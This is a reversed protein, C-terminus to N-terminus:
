VVDERWRASVIDELCNGSKEVSVMAKTSFLPNSESSSRCRLSALTAKLAGWRTGFANAVLSAIRGLRLRCKTSVFKLVRVFVSAYRARVYM